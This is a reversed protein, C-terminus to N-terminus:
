AAKRTQPQCHPWSNCERSQCRSCVGADFRPAPRANGHCNPCRRSGFRVECGCEPCSGTEPEVPTGDSYHAM